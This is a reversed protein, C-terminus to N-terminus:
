VISHQMTLTNNIKWPLTNPLDFTMEFYSKKQDAANPFIRVILFRRRCPRIRTFQHQIHLCSLSCTSRKSNCQEITLSSQASAREKNPTCQAIRSHRLPHRIQQSTPLPPKSSMMISIKPTCDRKTYYPLFPIAPCKFVSFLSHQHHLQDNSM